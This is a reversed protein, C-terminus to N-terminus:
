TCPLPSNLSCISKVNSILQSYIPHSGQIIQTPGIYSCPDKFTSSPSLLTLLCTVPLFACLSLASSAQFIPSPTMLWPIHAVKLLQSLWPVLM